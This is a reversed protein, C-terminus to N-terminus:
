HMCNYINIKDIDSQCKDGATLKVKVQEGSTNKNTNKRLSFTNVCSLYSSFLFIPLMLQQPSAEFFTSTTIVLSQVSGLTGDGCRRKNFSANVVNFFTLELKISARGLLLLLRTAHRRKCRTPFNFFRPELAGASETWDVFFFLFSQIKKRQGGRHFRLDPIFMNPFRFALLAFSKIYVFLVPVSPCVFLVHLVTYFLLALPSSFRFGCHHNRAPSAEASLSSVTWPGRGDGWARTHTHTPYFSTSHGNHLWIGACYHYDYDNHCHFISFIKVNSLCLMTMWTLRKMMTMWPIEKGPKEKKPRSGHDM